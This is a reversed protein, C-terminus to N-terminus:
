QIPQQRQHCQATPSRLNSTEHSLFVGIKPTTYNIVIVAKNQHRALKMAHQTGKSKGDWFAIVRQSKNIIDKNRELPARNSAYKTYDPKLVTLTIGNEKAYKEACSDAGRAGGSIIHSIDNYKDLTEKILGYYKSEDCGRSGIIAYKM